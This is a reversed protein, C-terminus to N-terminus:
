ANAIAPRKREASRGLSGARRCRDANAARVIEALRLRELQLKIQLPVAPSIALRAKLEPGIRPILEGAFTRNM